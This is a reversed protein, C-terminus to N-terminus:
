SRQYQYGNVDGVLNNINGELIKTLRYTKNLLKKDNSLFEIMQIEANELLVKKNADDSNKTQSYTYLLFGLRQDLLADLRDIDKNYTYMNNTISVIGKNMELFGDGLNELTSIIEVLKSSEDQEEEIEFSLQNENYDEDFRILLKRELILRYLDQAKDEYEKNKSFYLIAERLDEYSITDVETDDSLYKKINDYADPVESIYEKTTEIREKFHEVINMQIEEDDIMRIEKSNSFLVEKTKIRTNDGNIIPMVIFFDIEQKPVIGDKWISKALDENNHYETTYLDAERLSEFEGKVEFDNTLTDRAVLYCNSSM